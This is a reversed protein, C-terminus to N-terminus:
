IFVLWSRSSYNEVHSATWGANIDASFKHSKKSRCEAPALPNYNDANWRKKGLGEVRFRSGRKTCKAVKEFEYSM